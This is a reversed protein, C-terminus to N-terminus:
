TGIEKLTDDEYYILDEVNTGDEFEVIHEEITHLHQHSGAAHQKLRVNPFQKRFFLRFTSYGMYQEAGNDFQKYEQYIKSLPEDLVIPKNSHQPKSSLYSRLFTDVRKYLDLPFANHPMKNANGHQIAVVGNKMVHSRIKKLSYLSINELYLFAFLCVKKGHYSYSSRKRQRKTERDSIDMLSSRVLGMMYFDMENKTLEAMNLRHRYVVEPDFGIFCNTKCECGANLRETVEDASSELSTQTFDKNPGISHQKQM